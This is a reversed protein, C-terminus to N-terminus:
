LGRRRVDADYGPRTTLRPDDVAGGVTFHYLDRFREDALGLTEHVVDDFFCGIGTGRVAAAEAELYLVQGLLGAEWHARRYWWPETELGRLDALMAVAFASDSAIEQHCSAFRALPRADGEELLFFPLEAPCGEVAQWAFSPRLTRRLDEVAGRARGLLHLGPPLGDVRHVFFLAHVRPSWPLADWPPVGAGPLLRRLIEFFTAAKISTEGDMSVASRRQRILRVASVPGGTSGEPGTRGSDRPVVSTRPKLTAAAVEGVAPWDVHSPSLPSPRGTWTGDRLLERAEDLGREVRRAAEEIGPAPGVVVLGDAQEREPPAVAALDDSRDLGLLVSVDDDGPSDLLRASWGLVAAAYRVAALAHGVDHHCYRFAREGYKWSERWHVSALGLLLAGGPLLRALTGAGARGPSWRQELVHDRSLYHHLGAPVGEVEPVLVYAETPHLNGSSPNARLAWRAGAHEKWATVGLALELLAGLSARDPARPPVSGPRRLDGWSVALEPGALPLM